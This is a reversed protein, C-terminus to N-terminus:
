LENGEGGFTYVSEGHLVLEHYPVPLHRVNGPYLQMSPVDTRRRDYFGLLPYTMLTEVFREYYLSEILEEQNMSASVPTLNGKGERTQNILDAAETLNQGTRILAEAILLDNEAKTFFNIYGVGFNFLDDFRSFKYHTLIHYGKSNASGAWPISEDYTFYQDFREDPSTVEGLKSEGFPWPYAANEDQPAMMNIIRQHVRIWGWTSLAYYGWPDRNIVMGTWGDEVRVKWDNELGNEAHNLVETWEVQATEEANRANGVLLRAAYSHAFQALTQNDFLVEPLMEIPDTFDNNECIAIAKEIREIAFEMIGHYDTFKFDYENVDISEDLLYAKDYLLAVHGYLLGQLLYAHAMVSNTYDENDIIVKLDNEEIAKLVNNVTPIAQYFGFWGGAPPLLVPDADTNPVPERPINYYPSAGWSGYGTGMTESSPCLAFNPSAGVSHNWWSSYAGSLLKPFDEVNSYVQEINPSNYNPVDLDSFENCSIISISFFLVTFILKYKKM